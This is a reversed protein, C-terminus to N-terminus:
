PKIKIVGLPSFNKIFSKLSDGFYTVVSGKTVGRFVKGDTTIYNTRPSLFCQPRELLPRFWKESTSAFCICCAASVNGSEYESVLKNVWLHNERRSFPHNMWVPGVWARDLSRDNIGFWGDARVRENAEESSAPDLVIYGLTKRAAEIIPQPTWFEVKGSTQNILTANNM